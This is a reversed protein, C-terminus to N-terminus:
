SNGNRAADQASLNSLVGNVKTIAAELNAFKTTLQDKYTAIQDNITAINQQYRTNTDTLAKVESQITGSTQNLSATLINNIKDAIGATASVNVTASGTGAYLMVLGQLATGDKGTLTVGGSNVTGTLDITRQVNDSDTYIAQYTGTNTDLSVTFQNVALANTHSYVQMSTSDASFNFGFVKAVADFDSQLASQLKSTDIDMIDSSAPNTSDGPYDEFSVGLDTLASPNGSGLGSVISTLMSVVSNELSNMTTSGALLATDTPSGDSNRATQNTFFFKFDNYANAFNTIASQVSAVDPQIQVSLRTTPAAVTDQLINFTVNKVLDTITNSQRTITVGNFDFEANEADQVKTIGPSVNAFVGSPDSITTVDANTLDFDAGTGTQTATFLLKFANDGTKIVQASIGTTASVNNFKNAVSQLTDGANFVIDAHGGTGTVTVTGVGFQNGTPTASVVSQNADSVAFIDTSQSKAQAVSTINDISYNQVVAGPSVSVSLYSSAAASTNSSVNATRYTFVNSTENNVGAPNSLFSAANQLAQLKTRLDGYASIEKTNADIKTQLDTAPQQKAAVLSDILGKADLGSSSGSLVNRGNVSYLNGLQIQTVM